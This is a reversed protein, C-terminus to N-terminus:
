KEREKNYLNVEIINFERYQDIKKERFKTKFIDVPMTYLTLNLDRFEVMTNDVFEIYVESDKLIETMNYGVSPDCKIIQDFM